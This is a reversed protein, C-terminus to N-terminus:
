PSERPDKTREEMRFYLRFCRLLKKLELEADVINNERQARSVKEFDVIAAKAYLKQAMMVTQIAAEIKPKLNHSQDIMYAINPANCQEFAYSHIEYFISFIQYPDITGMTLDDDAYRRDNFHFGGLM